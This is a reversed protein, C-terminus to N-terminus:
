AVPLGVRRLLEDRGAKTEPKSVEPRNATIYNFAAISSQKERHFDDINANGTAFKTFIDYILWFVFKEYLDRDEQHAIGQLANLGEAWAKSVKTKQTSNPRNTKFNEITKRTKEQDFLFTIQEGKKNLLIAEALRVLHKYHSCKCESGVTYIKLLPERVVAIIELIAPSQQGGIDAFPEKNKKEQM